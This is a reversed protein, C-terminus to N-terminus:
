MIKPKEENFNENNDFIKDTVFHGSSADFAFQHTCGSIGVVNELNIEIFGKQVLKIVLNSLEEENLTMNYVLENISLINDRNDLKQYLKILLITEIENLNIKKYNKLIEETFSITKAKILRAVSNM